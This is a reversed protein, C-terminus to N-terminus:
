WNPIKKKLGLLFLDDFEKNERRLRNAGGESLGIKRAAVKSGWGDAVHKKFEELDKTSLSRRFRICVPCSRVGLSM